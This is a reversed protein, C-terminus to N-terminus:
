QSEQMLKFQELCFQHYERSVGQLCPSTRGLAHALEAAAIARQRQNVEWNSIMSTEPLYDRRKM